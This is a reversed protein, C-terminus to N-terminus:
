QALRKGSAIWSQKTMPKKSAGPKGGKLCKSAMSSHLGLPPFPCNLSSLLKCLLLLTNGSPGTLLFAIQFHRLWVVGELWTHALGGM